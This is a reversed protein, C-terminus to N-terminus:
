ISFEPVVPQQKLSQKKVLDELTINDVVDSVAEDIKKWIDLTVCAESRSCQNPDDDM